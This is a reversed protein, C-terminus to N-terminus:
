RDQERNESLLMAKLRGIRENRAKAVKQMEKPIDELLCKSLDAAESNFDRIANKSGIAVKLIESVTAEHRCNPIALDSRFGKLSFGTELADSVVSYYARGVKQQNKKNEKSFKEFSDNLKGHLKSWEESQLSWNWDQFM